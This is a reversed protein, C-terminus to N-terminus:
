GKRGGPQDVNGPESRQPKQKKPPRTICLGISTKFGFYAASRQEEAEGYVQLAVPDRLKQVHRGPGDFAVFAGIYGLLGVVALASLSAAEVVFVLSLRVGFDFPTSVSCNADEDTECALM